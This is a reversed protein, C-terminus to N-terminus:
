QVIGTVRRLRNAGAFYIDKGVFEFRLPGGTIRGLPHLTLDEPHIRRHLYPSDAYPLKYATWIFGDPGNVFSPGKRPIQHKNSIGTIVNGFQNTRLVKGAKWDFKYIKTRSQKLYREETVLGVLAGDKAESISALANERM